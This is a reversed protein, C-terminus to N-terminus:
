LLCGERNIGGHIAFSGEIGYMAALKDGEEMAQGGDYSVGMPRTHTVVVDDIIATRGPVRGQLGGWIHDLCFAQTTGRFAPLCIKLLDRNMMPCMLEIFDGYRLFYEPTQATVRHNVYSNSNGSLSPQALELGSRRFINFLRNIDRWSTELDDDPFWFNDYQLLAPQNLILNAIATFKMDRHQHFFYESEDFYSPINESYWSVCLDWNRDEEALYRPWERHLSKNGARLVVLNSRRGKTGNKIVGISSLDDPNGVPTEDLSPMEVRTLVHEISGVMRSFGRMERPGHEDHERVEFSTTTAGSIDQLLVNNDRLEWVREWKSVIGGVIGHDRFRLAPALIVGDARSLSWATNRLYEESILAM